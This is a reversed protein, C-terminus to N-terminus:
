PTVCKRTRPVSPSCTNASPDIGGTLDISMKNRDTLSRLTQDLPQRARRLPRLPAAGRRLRHRVRRIPARAPEREAAALTWWSQMRQEFEDTVPEALWGYLGTVEGIPDAQMARFDIDYFRKDAGGARFELARDM